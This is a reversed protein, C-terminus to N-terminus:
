FFYDLLQLLLLQLKHELFSWLKNYILQIALLNLSPDDCVSQMTDMAACTTTMHSYKNVELYLVSHRVYVNAVTRQLKSNASFLSGLIRTCCLRNSLPFRPFRSHEM